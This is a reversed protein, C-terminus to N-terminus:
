RSMTATLFANGHGYEGAVGVVCAKGYSEIPEGKLMENLHRAIELGLAPSNKVVESLDRTFRGNAYPNRVCAGVVIKRLATGDAPEGLETGLIEDEYSFWRRIQFATPIPQTM